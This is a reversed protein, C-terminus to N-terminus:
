LFHIDTNLTGVDVSLSQFMSPTFDLTWLRCRAQAPKSSTVAQLYLCHRSGVHLAPSVLQAMTGAHLGKGTPGGQHCGTVQTSTHMHTPCPLPPNCLDVDSISNDMDMCVYAYLVCVCM